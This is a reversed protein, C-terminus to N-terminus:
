KIQLRVKTAKTIAAFSPRPHTALLLASAQQGDDQPPRAAARSPSPRPAPATTRRSERLRDDPRGSRAPGTPECRLIVAGFGAGGRASFDIAEDGAAVALGVTEVRCPGVHPRADRFIGARGLAVGPHAVRAGHGPGLRRPLRLSSRSLSPKGRLRRLSALRTPEASLQIAVNHSDKRLNCPQMLACLSNSSLSLAM